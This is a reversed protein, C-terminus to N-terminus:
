LKFVVRHWGVANSECFSAADISQKTEREGRRVAMSLIYQSLPLLVLCLLVLPELPLSRRAACYSAENM